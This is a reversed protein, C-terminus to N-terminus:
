RPKRARGQRRVYLAAFLAASCGALNQSLAFKWISDLDMLSIVSRYASVFFQGLQPLRQSLSNAWAIFWNSGLVYPIFLFLSYAGLILAGVEVMRSDAGIRQKRLDTKVRMRMTRDVAYMWSSLIVLSVGLAPLLVIPFTVQLTGIKVQGNSPSFGHSLMYNIFFFQLLIITAILLATSIIGRATAWRLVVRKYGESM